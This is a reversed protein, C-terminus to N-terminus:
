STTVKWRFLKAARELTLDAAGCRLHQVIQERADEVRIRAAHEFSNPFADEALCWRYGYKGRTRGTLDYKTLLFKQQWYQSPYLM